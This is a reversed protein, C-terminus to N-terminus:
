GAATERRLGVFGGHKSRKYHSGPPRRSRGPSCPLRALRQGRVRAKVMKRYPISASRFTGFILRKSVSWHHRSTKKKNMHVAQNGQFLLWEVVRDIAALRMQSCLKKHKSWDEKQCEKSCYYMNLCRCLLLNGDCYLASFQPPVPEYRACRKLNQPDSLQNPRKECQACIKFSREMEEFMEKQSKFTLPKDRTQLGTSFLSLFRSSDSCKLTILVFWLCVFLCVM